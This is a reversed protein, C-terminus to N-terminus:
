ARAGVLEKLVSAVHAPAKEDMEAYLPLSIVEEALKESNPFAGAGLGMTAYAPQLHLSIPYHVGAGVGKAQLQPLIVERNPVRVVYLHYVHHVDGQPSMPVVGPVDALLEDYMAAFRRRGRTWDDLHRLKVDLIAAQLGDLRYAYGETIHEYKTTRGHDRLLRIRDGLEQDDTVIGGADGYAGLNKGPYFSYCSVRGMSGVNRGKYRAGHAQAADEIVALGHRQAIELIPDMDAPHGFIHVPIVAKTRPTIAAELQDPDLCGDSLRCDVFKVTAGTQSIAETTAIFTWPSTIVEDGPGIDLATMAIHLAATGSALGVCHDVGVFKAFNEEFSAVAPGGIFACSEVIRGIADDIEPKITNYQARLDNFPVNM